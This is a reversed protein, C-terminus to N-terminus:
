WRHRWRPPMLARETLAFLTDPARQRQSDIERGILVDYGLTRACCGLVEIWRRTLNQAEIFADRTAATNFGQNFQTALQQTRVISAIMAQDDTQFRMIQGSQWASAFTAANRASVHKRGLQDATVVQWYREVDGSPRRVDLVKAEPRIEVTCINPGGGKAAHRDTSCFIFSHQFFGPKHGPLPPPFIWDEFRPVHTGHYWIENLSGM